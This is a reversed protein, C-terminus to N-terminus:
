ETYAQIARVLYNASMSHVLHVGHYVPAPYVDYLTAGGGLYIAAVLM